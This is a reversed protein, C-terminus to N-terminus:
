RLMRGLLGAAQREKENQSKLKASYMALGASTTWEPDNLEEPWDQIGVARGFRTQCELVREALDCIDPLNAGGGTLFVGGALARELGVRALEARVHQFLETARAELILCVMKRSARRAERDESSPLEVLVNEACTSALASGYEAKVVEADEFSLRLGQALDRTFHDSGIRVAATVLIADGYYAVLETSHAGIDVVAIGERRDEPLVSAYCAAVAEFVTEDVTLHAHNVAGVLANHEQKSATVLHVNIELHSALMKRPDRHGPHGDVVFDQPFLQLLMRDEQLQVRSARNVVRSVDRQEIERVHALELGGRGSAGRSTPGGFGAVVSDVSVGATVEAMRLATLVSAAVAGQDAIRGKVWGESASWGHGIYRLRGNELLCVALRTMRAGADLGAAYIPKAAM